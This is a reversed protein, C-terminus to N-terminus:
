QRFKDATDTTSESKVRELLHSFVKKIRKNLSKRSGGDETKQYATALGALEGVWHEVSHRLREKDQSEAFVPLMWAFLAQRLRGIFDNEAKPVRRNCGEWHCRTPGRNEFRAPRLEAERRCRENLHKSCASLVPGQHEPDIFEPVANRLAEFFTSRHFQLSR